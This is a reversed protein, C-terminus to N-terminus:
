MTHITSVHTARNVPLYQNQGAITIFHIFTSSLYKLNNEQNKGQNYGQCKPNQAMLFVLATINVFYQASKQDIASM